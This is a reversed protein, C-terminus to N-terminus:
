VSAGHWLLEVPQHLDLGGSGGLSDWYSWGRYDPTANYEASGRYADPSAYLGLAVTAGALTLGTSLLAGLRGTSPRLRRRVPEGM